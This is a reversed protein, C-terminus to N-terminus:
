TASVCEPFCLWDQKSGVRIDVQQDVLENDKHFARWDGVVIVNSNIEEYVCKHQGQMDFEFSLCSRFTALVLVAGLAASSSLM